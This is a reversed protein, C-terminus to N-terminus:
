KHHKILTKTWGHITISANQNTSRIAVQM